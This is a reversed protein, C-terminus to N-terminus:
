FRVDQSFEFGGDFETLKSTSHTDQWVNVKQQGFYSINVLNSDAALNQLNQHIILINIKTSKQQGFWWKFGIIEFPCELVTKQIKWWINKKAKLELSLVM